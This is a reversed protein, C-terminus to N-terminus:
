KGDEESCDYDFLPNSDSQKVAEAKVEIRETLQKPKDGELQMITKDNIYRVDALKGAEAFEKLKMLNDDTVNPVLSLVPYSSIDDPKQSKHKSVALDFLVRTVTGAKEFVYDFTDRLQNISSKQAKTELQWLGFVGKIEPVLFRLTLVRHWKTGTRAECKKMIDPHDSTNFPKYEKEKDDFVHFTEGDGKAFLDGKSNRLEFRENCNFNIDDSTFLITIKDPPVPFAQDFLDKYKGTAIFHDLSQPYEKGKASLAKKGCKIKGVVPLSCTKETSVIRAKM